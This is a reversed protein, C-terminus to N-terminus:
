TNAYPWFKPLFELEGCNPIPPVRASYVDQFASVAKDTFVEAPTREVGIATTDAADREESREQRIENSPTVTTWSVDILATGDDPETMTVTDEVDSPVNSIDWRTLNTVAANADTHTESLEIRDFITELRPLCLGLATEAHNWTWTSENTDKVKETGSTELEMQAVFGVDPDTEKVSYPWWKPKDRTARVPTVAESDDVHIEALLRIHLNDEPTPTPMETM